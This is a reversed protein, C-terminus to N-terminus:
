SQRAELTVEILGSLYYEICDVVYFDKGDIKIKQEPCPRYGLYDPSVLLQRRVVYIGDFNGKTSKDQYFKCPLDVGDIKHNEAAEDINLFLGAADEAVLEKFNM